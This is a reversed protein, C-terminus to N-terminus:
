RIFSSEVVANDWCNGRRSMSAMLGHGALVERSLTAAYQSGCDTHHLEGTMPTGRGHHAGSHGVGSDPPEGDGPSSGARTSIWCVALYLWGEATWVYTIGGAWVRIPIRWRLSVISRTRCSRIRIRRIWPPGGNRSRRPASRGRACSVPSVTSVSGSARPRLTAHVRPIGYTSRSEAHIVRIM